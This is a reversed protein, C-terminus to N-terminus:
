QPQGNKEIEERLSDALKKSEIIVLKLDDSDVRIIREDIQKRSFRLRIDEAALEVRIFRSMERSDTQFETDIKLGLSQALDTLYMEDPEGNEDRYFFKSLHILNITHDPSTIIHDHVQGRFEDRTLTYGSDVIPLKAESILSYLNLTFIKNSEQDIATVWNIFYQSINEMKRKIFSLYNGSGLRYSTVDIKCAMSLNDLDLHTITNIIYSTTGKKMEFLMGKTDRILYVSIYEKENDEYEAFVLFGGKAAQVSEVRSRLDGMANISFNLFETDTNLAVATYNQFNEPFPYHSGIALRAYIISAHKYNADLKQILENASADVPLLESSGTIEANLKGEEKRLLHVVLKKVQMSAEM